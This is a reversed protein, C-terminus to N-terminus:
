LSSQWARRADAARIQDRLDLPDEGTVQQGTAEHDAHYMGSIGQACRWQPYQAQVDALTPEGATSATM